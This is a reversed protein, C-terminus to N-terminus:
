GFWRWLLCEMSPRFDPHNMRLTARKILPAVLSAPGEQALREAVWLREHPLAQEATLVEILFERTGDDHGVSGAWLLDFRREGDTEHRWAERLVEFGRPGTNSCQLTFFRHASYGKISGERSRAEGLLFTTSEPGPIQSIAQVWAESKSLDLGLREKYQASLLKLVRLSMGPNADWNGMMARTVTGMKNLGGSWLEIATDAATENGRKLLAVLAAERVSLLDDQLAHVLAKDIEETAPLPELMNLAALRLDGVPDEQMVRLIWDFRTTISLAQLANARVQPSENSLMAEIMALSGDGGEIFQQPVSLLALMSQSQIQPLIAGIRRALDPDKTEALISAGADHLEVFESNTIWGLVLERTREPDSKYMAGLVEIRSSPGLVPLQVVLDDFLEPVSHRAMARVTAIRITEVPHGLCNKFVARGTKGGGDASLSFVGLANVIVPSSHRDGYIRRILRELEVLAPEGLEALEERVNRLVNRQSSQLKAVLVPLMDSTDRNFHGKGYCKVAITRLRDDKTWDVAPDTGLSASGQGQQVMEAGDDQVDPQPVSEADSSCGSIFCTLGLSLAGLLILSRRPGQFSFVTSDHEIM